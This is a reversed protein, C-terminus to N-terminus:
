AQTVAAVIVDCRLRVLEVALEPLREFRGEAYRTEVILNQGEAYGHLRLGDVLGPRMRDAAPLSASLFGVRVLPPPSQAEGVRLAAFLLVILVAISKTVMRRVVMAGMGDDYDSLNNDAWRIPTSRGASAGNNPCRGNMGAREFPENSSQSGSSARPSQSSREPRELASWRLSLM